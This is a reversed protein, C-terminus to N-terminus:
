ALLVLMFFGSGVCHGHLFLLTIKLVVSVNSPCTTLQLGCFILFGSALDHQRRGDKANCDSAYKRAEKIAERVNAKIKKHDLGTYM